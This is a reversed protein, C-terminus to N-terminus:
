RAPGPGSPEAGGHEAGDAAVAHVRERLAENFAVFGDETGTLRSRLLPVLVGTFTEAHHLRTGGDARRELVFSHEGDLLRGPGLRGLWRLEHGPTAALVTPRFTTGAALHVVLRSGVEARGEVRDMFPNWEGYAAFDTLVPWVAEPPADIDISTTTTTPMTPERDTSTTPPPPHHPALGDATPGDMLRGARRPPRRPARRSPARDRPQAAVPERPQRLRARTRPSSTSSRSAAGVCRPSSTTRSPGCWASTTPVRRSSCRPASGSSWRSPSRARLDAEQEPVDPDGASAYWSSVNYARTFPPLTRLFTVLDSVGVYDVAAASRAPTATIGVLAAYGGYSGGSIGVRDPDAYGRNALFQVDASYGWGDHMWPGGHVLLVLPLGRPEVGVPLTLYGHLPLGDRAPFGVPTMPALAAPDLDPHARWLLRADGTAHDYLWAVGSERDHVFTAIWRREADDSSPAGLVGDSLRALAAHM